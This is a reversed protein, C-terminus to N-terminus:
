SDSAKLGAREQQGWCRRGRSRRQGLSYQTPGEETKVALRVGGGNGAVYESSGSSRFAGPATSGWFSNVEKGEEAHHARHAGEDGTTRAPRPVAAGGHGTSNDGDRLRRVLCALACPGSRSAPGALDHAAHVSRLGLGLRALSPRVRAACASKKSATGSPRPLIRGLPM